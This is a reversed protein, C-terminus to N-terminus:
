LSVRSGFPNLLVLARSTAKGADGSEPGALTDLIKDVLPAEAVLIGAGSNASSQDGM